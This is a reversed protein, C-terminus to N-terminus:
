AKGLVLDVVWCGRVHPGDGRCHSLIDPNDCGAEELADALIPMAAFDRSDYVSRALGLSASTRWKKSVAVPRFPNGFIDRLLAVQAARETRPVTRIVAGRHGLVYVANAIGATLGELADATLDTLVHVASGIPEAGRHRRAADRLPKRAAVAESRVAPDDAYQEGADVVAAFAPDPPLAALMRRACAVALLRLKRRDRCVPHDILSEASRAALWQKETVPDEPLAAV